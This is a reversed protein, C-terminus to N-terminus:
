LRTKYLGWGYSLFAALFAVAMVLSYMDNQNGVFSSGAIFAFIISALGLGSAIKWTKNKRLFARIYLVVAGVLLLTGWYMHLNFLLQSKAFQWMVGENGSEPFKVFLNTSMGLLYEVILGILMGLAQKNLSDKLGNM